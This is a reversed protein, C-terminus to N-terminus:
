CLAEKCLCCARPANSGARQAALCAWPAKAGWCVTVCAAGWMGRWTGRLAVRRGGEQSGPFDSDPSVLDAVFEAPNHHPPCPYGLAAFHDLAQPAGAATLLSPRSLAGCPTHVPRRAALTARPPGGERLWTVVTTTRAREGGARVEEGIGEHVAM